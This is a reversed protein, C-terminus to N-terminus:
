DDLHQYVIESIRKWQADNGIVADVHHEVAAAVICADPLRLGYRSRFDAALAATKETMPVVRCLRSVFLRVMAEAEVAGDRMPKVLLEAVTIPSILVVANGAEVRQLVAAVIRQRVSHQAGDLFYICASTDLLM